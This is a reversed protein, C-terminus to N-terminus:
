IETQRWAEFTKMDEIKSNKDKAVNFCYIAYQRLAETLKIYKYENPQLSVLKRIYIKDM